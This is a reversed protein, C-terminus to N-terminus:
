YPDRVMCVSKGRGDKRQPKFIQFTKMFGDRIQYKTTSNMTQFYGDFYNKLHDFKKTQSPNTQKKNPKNNKPTKPKTKPKKKTQTKKKPLIDLEDKQKPSDFFTCIDKKSDYSYEGFYFINWLVWSAKRHCM